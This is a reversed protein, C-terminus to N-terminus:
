ADSSDRELAVSCPWDLASEYLSYGRCGNRCTRQGPWFWKRCFACSTGFSERKRQRKRFEMRTLGLGSPIQCFSVKLKHFQSKEIQWISLNVSELKSSKDRHSKWSVLTFSKLKEFRCISLKLNWRDSWNFTEIQWIAVKLKDFRCVSVTLNYRNSLIFSEIQSIWVKWNTWDVFQRKWTAVIQCFALNMIYFQFMPIQWMTLNVYGLTLLKVWDFKWNTFNFCKLKEFWGISVRLNGRILVSFSEIQWNSVTPNTLEVLGFKESELFFV